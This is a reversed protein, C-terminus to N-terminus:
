KASRARAALREFDAIFAAADHTKEIAGLAGTREIIPKLAALDMSSHLIVATQNTAVSRRLVQGLEGGGLAPMMVDLLILDPQERAAWQTTGLADSRVHVDYGAATLRERLVELTIPDDDVVLVKGRGRPTLSQTPNRQSTSSM